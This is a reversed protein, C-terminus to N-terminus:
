GGEGVGWGWLLVRSASLIIAATTDPDYILLSDGDFADGFGRTTVEVRVRGRGAWGEFRDRFLVAGENPVQPTPANTLTHTCQPTNTLMQQSHTIHTFKHWHTHSPPIPTKPNRLAGAPARGPGSKPHAATVRAAPVGGGGVCVVGPARRVHYYVVVDTRLGLALDAVDPPSELLARASAIGGPGSM